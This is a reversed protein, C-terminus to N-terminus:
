QLNDCAHVIHTINLRRSQSAHSFCEVQNFVREGGM